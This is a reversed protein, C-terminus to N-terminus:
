QVYTLAYQGMLCKWKYNVNASVCVENIPDSEKNTLKMLNKLQTEYINDEYLINKENLIIGSDTAILVDASPYNEKLYDGWMIAALGGM